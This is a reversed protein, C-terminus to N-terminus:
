DKMEHNEVKKSDVKAQKTKLPRKIKQTTIPTNKIKQAAEALNILVIQEAEQEKREQEEIQKTKATLDALVKEALSPNCMTLYKEFADPYVFCKGGKVEPFQITIQKDDQGIVKGTGFVSHEVLENILDM